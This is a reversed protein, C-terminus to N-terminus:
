FLMNVVDVMRHSYGWENDYWGVVKIINGDIVKTLSSDFIVSHPNGIIDTSVLAEESYELIGGLHHEAVSKFLKNVEEVSTGKKVHCTFDTISGNPVPVRIAMGDLKGKMDPIVQAVAIAAGTSTPIINVAASRARRWDKHGADILRQDGTYAHVTTMMGKEIQFNDHLVKVMPALCNTTCSGNSIIVHKDKNYEHENVGKVIVFDADKSPASILVKKAGGALHKSALEHTKFFGTCELVVDVNSDKWPIEAPDRCSHVKIEKGNVILSNETHKVQGQFAGHVSDRKLLHALLPTPTLDNIAVVNMKGVGARFVMRGIRGFGNIGVNVMM